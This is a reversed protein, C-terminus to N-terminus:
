WRYIMWSPVLIDPELRNYRSELQGDGDRDVLYYPFGVQPVIRIMYLEGNMRYETVTRDKQKIITVEPELDETTGSPVPAGDEGTLPVPPPPPEEAACALPLALLLVPLIRKM